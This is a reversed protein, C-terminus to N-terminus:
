KDRKTYPAVLDVGEAVPVFITARRGSATYVPLDRLQGIQKFTKADFLIARGSSFWRADDFEIFVGNAAQPRRPVPKRAPVPAVRGSVGMPSPSAAMPARSPSAAAASVMLDASPRVTERDFVVSSGLTSTMAAQPVVVFMGRVAEAPLAFLPASSDTTGLTGRRQYPHMFGGSLPVFVIGLSDTATASYLPVGEYEGSRIMENGNFLVQTGLPYYVTGAYVLPEGTHYWYKGDATVLPAPVPQRTPQAHAAGTACLGIVCFIVLRASGNM